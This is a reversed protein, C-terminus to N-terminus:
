PRDGDRDAHLGFTAAAVGGERCAVGVRRRVLAQAHDWSRARGAGAVEQTFLAEEVDGGLDFLEVTLGASRWDDIGVSADREVLLRVALRERQAAVAGEHAAPM